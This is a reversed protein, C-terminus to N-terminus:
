LFAGKYLPLSCYALRHSKIMCQTFKCETLNGQMSQNINSYAFKCISICAINKYLTSIM